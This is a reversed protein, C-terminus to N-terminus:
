RWWAHRRQAAQPRLDRAPGLGPRPRAGPDPGAGPGRPAAEGDDGGHGPQQRLAPRRPRRGPDGAGGAPRRAPRGANTIAVEAGSRERMVDTVFSGLSSEALYDRVLRVASTGLVDGIIPSARQRYPALSRAVRPDPTLKESWVKLLEGEHGVRKKGALRLKLYGLRTGYGYTQVVITGTRPHVYPTEIGRHAHGGVFVDIGPVTGVLHIDEEFDRQVEPRAEADTQMPGTKGQHALVVVLDVQPRLLDVASAVELAPDEFDLNTIGSPLAVSRADQGIIGIVGLRVGEKELIM